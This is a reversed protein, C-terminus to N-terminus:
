SARATIGRHEPRATAAAPKTPGSTPMASSRIDDHDPSPGHRDLPEKSLCSFIWPSEYRVAAALADGHVARERREGIPQTTVKGPLSVGQVGDAIVNM